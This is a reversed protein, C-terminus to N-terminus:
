DVKWPDAALIWVRCWLHWLHAGLTTGVTLQTTRCHSTNSNTHPTHPSQGLAGNHRSSDTPLGGTTRTRNTQPM